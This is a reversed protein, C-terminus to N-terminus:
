DQLSGGKMNAFLADSFYIISCQEIDQLDVLKISLTDTRVKHIHKNALILDKVTANKTAVSLQDHM